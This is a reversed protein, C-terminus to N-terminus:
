NIIPKLTYSDCHVLNTSRDPIGLEEDAYGHLEIENGPSTSNKIYRGHTKEFLYYLILDSKIKFPCIGNSDYIVSAEDSSLRRDFWMFSSIYGSPLNSNAMLGLSLKSDSAFDDPIPTVNNITKSVGNVYINWDSLSIGSINLVVCNWSNQLWGASPITNNQGFYSGSYWQMTTGATGASNICLGIRNGSTRGIGLFVPWFSATSALLVPLYFWVVVSFDSSENIAIDINAAELVPHKRPGGSLKVCRGLNRNFSIIDSM